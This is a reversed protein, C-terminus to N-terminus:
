LTRAWSEKALAQPTKRLLLQLLEASAWSEWTDMQTKIAELIRDAKELSGDSAQLAGMEALQNITRVASDLDDDTHHPSASIWKDIGDIIPTQKEGELFYATECFRATNQLFDIHDNPLPKVFSCAQNDFYEPWLKDPFLKKRLNDQIENDVCVRDPVVFKLQRLVGGLFDTVQKNDIWKKLHESLDKKQGVLRIADETPDDVTEAKGQDANIATILVAQGEHKPVGTKSIREKPWDGGRYLAVVRNTKLDIVPSGSTGHTTVGYLGLYQDDQIADNMAIAPTVRLSAGAAHGIVTLDMEAFDEDIHEGSSDLNLFPVPGKLNEVKLITYDLDKSTRVLKINSFVEFEGELSANRIVQFGYCRNEDCREAPVVHNNTM